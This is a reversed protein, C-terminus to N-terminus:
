IILNEKEPDFRVTKGERLALYGMILATQTHYAREAPSQTDPNGARVCEVFKRFYEGMNEEGQIPYRQAEKNTSDSPEFVIENGQITLSGEWGRLVPVKAGSGRAGTGQFGNGQTGLLACTIGGPYDVLMNFTDPVEREVKEDPNEKQTESLSYRYIGGTGVAYAPAKLDLMTTVPTYSHPYLDTSPGGAYDEYMRWRFFRSVDFDRKPRDGLFADWNLDPGPKANPDDVPMGREGWDGVRFIGCEAHLPQGILGEQVLAKMQWWAPDSMGQTGLQFVRGTERATRAIERAVEFQSWHTLPKECYVDKGARMADIAQQGHHHDPTTISVMDVNPDALLERYDMYKKANAAAQAARDLRPRYVDCVAVVEVNGSNEGLWKWTGMHGMGRGGCGIIGVGLKESASGAAQAIAPGASVVAMGAALSASRGIFTRRSLSTGRNTQRSNDVNWDEKDSFPGLDGEDRQM